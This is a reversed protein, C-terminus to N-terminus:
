FSPTKGSQISGFLTPGEINQGAISRQNGVPIQNPVNEQSPPGFFPQAELTPGAFANETVGLTAPTPEGVPTSWPNPNLANSQQFLYNNAGYNPISKQSPNQSEFADSVLSPIEVTQPVVPAPKEQSIGSLNTGELTTPVKFFSNGQPLTNEGVSPAEISPAQYTGNKEFTSELPKFTSKINAESNTINYKGLIENITKSVESLSDKTPTNILNEISELVRNLEDQSLYKPM